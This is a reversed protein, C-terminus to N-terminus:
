CRGYVKRLIVYGKQTRKEGSRVSHIVKLSTYPALFMVYSIFWIISCFLSRVYQYDFRQLCHTLFLLSFLLIIFPMRQQWISHSIQSKRTKRECVYVKWKLSFLSRVPTLVSFFPTPPSGHAGHIAISLSFSTFAWSRARVCWMLGWVRRM